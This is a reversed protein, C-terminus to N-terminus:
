GLVEGAMLLLMVRMHRSDVDERSAEHIGGMLNHTDFVLAYAACEISGHIAERRAVNRLAICSYEEEGEAIRRAAERFIKKM